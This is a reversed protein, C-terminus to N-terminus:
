EADQRARNRAVTDGILGVGFGTVGALFGILYLAMAWLQAVDNCADRTCGIVQTATIWAAWVFFPLSVPAAAVIANRFNRSQPRKSALVYGIPFPIVIVAVFILLQDLM